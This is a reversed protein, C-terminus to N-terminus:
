FSNCGILHTVSYNSVFEILNMDLLSSRTVYHDFMSMKLSHEGLNDKSLKYSGDLCVTVFSFTCSVLHLSLLQHTTEPASFDREGVSRVMASQLGSRTDSDVALCGVCSQFVSSLAKSRPEGKAAYKAMYRVCADIDVIIQMDVNARWHQIMLWNHSNIRPDNRKTTLIVGLTGNNLKEFQLSSTPQLPQPYDFRCPQDQEGAKKHLYYAPSCRTHRQVTNITNCYDQDDTDNIDKVEM